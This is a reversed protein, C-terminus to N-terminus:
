RRLALYGTRSSQGDTFDIRYYYTGTPLESGSDSLGRFSRTQNDYNDVTFVVSGWRNFITVKNNASINQLTFADNKGDGNPSIANYVQLESSGVEIALNQQTCAELLDCVEIRVSDIGSFPGGYDVTLTYDADLSASAGQYSTNDLLNLTPLDLNDDPDSILGSLDISLIGNTPIATTSAAIVPPDNPVEAPIDFMAFYSQGGDVSPFTCNCGVYLKTDSCREIVATYQHMVATRAM